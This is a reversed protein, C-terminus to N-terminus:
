ATLPASITQGLHSDPHIEVIGASIRSKRLLGRVRLWGGIVGAGSIWTQRSQPQDSNEIGCAQSAAPQSRGSRGWGIELIELFECDLTVAIADQITRTKLPEFKGPRASRSRRNGNELRVKLLIGKPFPHPILVVGSTYGEERLASVSLGWGFSLAKSKKPRFRDRM